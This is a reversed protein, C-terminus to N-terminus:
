ATLVKGARLLTQGRRFDLGAIRVDAGETVNKNIKVTNGNRVAVEQVVVSDAGDPIPAGTFIRACEGPGVTGDYGDGARSVGVEILEAPVRNVDVARVAYGDMSSVAVPPQTLRAELDEALVRGHADSVSICESEILTFGRAVRSLAERVTLMENRQNM